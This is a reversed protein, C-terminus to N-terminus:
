DFNVLFVRGSDYAANVFGYLGTIPRSWVQQGNNEDLAILAKDSYSGQGTSSYTTVIILGQAILPYSIAQVSASTFDHQWKLTLPPVLSSLSDNGDHLPNNQWTVSEDSAPTPTPTPTPAMTTVSVTNSNGSTGTGNYARVRYYYTVNLTLGSINASTVNGVDLN